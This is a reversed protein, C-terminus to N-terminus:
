NIKLHKLPNKPSYNVYFLNQSEPSGGGGINPFIGLFHRNKKRVLGRHYIKDSFKQADSNEQWLQCGCFVLVYRKFKSIERTCSSQVGRCGEPLREPRPTCFGQRRSIDHDESGWVVQFWVVWHVWLLWFGLDDVVGCWEWQEWIPGWKLVRKLIQTGLLDGNKELDGNYGMEPQLIRYFDSCGSDILHQCNSNKRHCFQNLGTCRCVLHLWVIQLHKGVNKRRQM